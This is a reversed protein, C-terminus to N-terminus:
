PVAGQLTGTLTKGCIAPGENLGGSFLRHYIRQKLSGTTANSAYASAMNAKNLGTNLFTATPNSTPTYRCLVVENNVGRLEIAMFGEDGPTTAPDDYIVTFVALRYDTNSTTEAVTLAIREQAHLLLSLSGTILIALVIRRM